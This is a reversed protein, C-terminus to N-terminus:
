FYVFNERNDKEGDGWGTKGGYKKELNIVGNSVENGLVSM